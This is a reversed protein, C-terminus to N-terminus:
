AVDSLTLRLELLEVPLEGPQEVTFTGRGGDDRFGYRHYFALARANDALAWLRIPTHGRDRLTAVAADMLARGVGTRYRGPMQYIAYVEGGGDPHDGTRDPHEGDPRYPGINAFGVVAGEDVAVLTAARGTSEALHRRRWDLRQVDLPDMRDLYGQPLLGRYAWQWATVQVRTIDEADRPEGARITLVCAMIDSTGPLRRLVM